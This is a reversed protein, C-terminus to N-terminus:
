KSAYANAISHETPTGNSWKSASRVLQCSIQGARPINLPRSGRFQGEVQHARRALHEKLEEGEHYVEQGIRHMYSSRGADTRGASHFRPDQGSPGQGQTSEGSTGLDLRRYRTEKRVDYKEDDIPVNANPNKKASRPAYLHLEM